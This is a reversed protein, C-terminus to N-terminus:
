LTIRRPPDAKDGHATCRSGRTILRRTASFIPQGPSASVSSMAGQRRSCLRSSSRSIWSSGGRNVHPNAGKTSPATKGWVIECTSIM